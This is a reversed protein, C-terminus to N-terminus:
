AKKLFSSIQDISIEVEAREDIDQPCVIMLFYPLDNIAFKRVCAKDTYNIDMSINNATSDGLIRAAKGIADGLTMAFASALSEDKVPSNYVALPLGNSDVLVAGAFEGRKCMAFLMNELKDGRYMEGSDSVEVPAPKRTQTKKRASSQRSPLPRHGQPSIVQQLEAPIAHFQRRTTQAPSVRTAVVASQSILQDFLKAAEQIESFDKM